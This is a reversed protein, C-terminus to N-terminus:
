DEEVSPPGSHSMPNEDGRLMTREADARSEEVIGDIDAESVDEFEMEAIADSTEALVDQAREEMAVIDFVDDPEVFLVDCLARELESACETVVARVKGCTEANPADVCEAVMPVFLGPEETETDTETTASQAHLALPAMGLLFGVAATAYLNKLPM